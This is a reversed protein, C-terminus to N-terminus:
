GRMDIGCKGVLGTVNRPTQADFYPESIITAQTLSTDDGFIEYNTTKSTVVNPALATSAPISRFATTTFNMSAHREDTSTQNGGTTDAYTISFM